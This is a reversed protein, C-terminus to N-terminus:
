VGFLGAPMAAIIAGTLLTALSGSVMSRPGLAIIDARRSPAMTTLGALMIGLAGFNAFGCLAYTMILTTRPTLTESAATLQQYAIFENLVTKVGYIGGTAGAESWPIGILWTVPMFIWGFVREVSLPAGGIDPIVALM